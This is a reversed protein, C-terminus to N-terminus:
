QAQGVRRLGNIADEYEPAFTLAKRYDDAAKAKDGLIEACYGRYYHARVHLPATTITKDFQEYARSTSDLDLYLLGSNFYAAVYSSDVKEINQYLELAGALNNTRSLFDAKAHLALVNEPAIQIASEYYKAAVAHGRSEHLQGLNIWGDMLDADYNVAKQFSNIARATDGTEKFNMGLVLHAEGLAPDITLVQNLTKMSEPYLRLLLQTRSLKLLIPIEEPFLGAAKELAKLGQYSKFYKIYVDALLSYFPPQMSDLTIAQQLDQLANDLSNNQYFYAARDAYYAANEPSSAIKDNLATLTPNESTGANGGSTGVKSCSLMPVILWLFILINFNIRHMQIKKQYLTVVIYTQLTLFRWVAFQGCLGFIRWSFHFVRM